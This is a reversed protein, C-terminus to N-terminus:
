TGRVGSEGADRGSPTRRGVGTRGGEHDAGMARRAMGIDSTDLGTGVGGCGNASMGRPSTIDPDLPERGAGASMSAARAAACNLPDADENRKGGAM